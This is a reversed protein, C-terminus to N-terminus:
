EIWFLRVGCDCCYHDGYKVSGECKPCSYWNCYLEHMGIHNETKSICVVEDM